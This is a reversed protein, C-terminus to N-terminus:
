THSFFLCQLVTAITPDVRPFGRGVYPEAFIGPTDDQSSVCGAGTNWLAGRMGDKGHPCDALMGDWVGLCNGDNCDDDKGITEASRAPSPLSQTAMVMATAVSIQELCHRRTAHRATGQRRTPRRPLSPLIPSLSRTSPSNTAVLVLLFGLRTFTMNNSHYSAHCALHVCEQTILLANSSLAM